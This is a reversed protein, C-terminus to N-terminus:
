VIGSLRLMWLVMLVAVIGFGIRRPISFNPLDDM